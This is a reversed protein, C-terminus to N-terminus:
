WSGAQRRSKKGGRPGVEAEIAMGVAAGGQALEVLGAPRQLGQCAGGAHGAAQGFPGEAAPVEAFAGPRDAGLQPLGAVPPGLARDVV